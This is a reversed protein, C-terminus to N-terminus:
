TISPKLQLNVINRMPLLIKDIQITSVKFDLVVGFIHMTANGIIPDYMPTRLGPKYEVIDPQPHVKKNNSYEWFSIEIYGVKDTVFTGNSTGWLQPVARNIIIIDKSAGKKLFLLDGSLGSDLLVRITKNKAILGKSASQPVIQACNLAKKLKLIAKNLALKKSKPGLANKSPGLTTSNIHKKSFVTMVAVVATVKGTNEHSQAIHDARSDSSSDYVRMKRKKSKEAKKQGKQIAISMATMLWRKTAGMSKTPSISTPRSVEPLVSPSVMRTMALVNARTTHRDQVVPL